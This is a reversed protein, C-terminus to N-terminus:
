LNCIVCIQIFVFFINLRYIYRNYKLRQGEGLLHLQVLPPRQGRQVLQLGLQAVEGQEPQLLTVPVEAPLPPIHALEDRLAVVWRSRWDFATVSFEEMPLQPSHHLVNVEPDEGEKEDDNINDEHDSLDDDVAGPM